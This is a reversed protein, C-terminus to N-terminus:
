ECFTISGSGFSYRLEVSLLVQASLLSSPILAAEATQSGDDEVVMINDTVQGM